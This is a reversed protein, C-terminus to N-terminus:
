QTEMRDLLEFFEDADGDDPNWSVLHSPSMYWLGDYAYDPQPQMAMATVTDSPQPAHAVTVVPHVGIAANTAMDIDMFELQGTEHVPHM